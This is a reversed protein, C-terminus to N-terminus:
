KKAKDYLVAAVSIILAAAAIAGPGDFEPVSSSVAGGGGGGGGPRGQGYTAFSCWLEAFRYWM